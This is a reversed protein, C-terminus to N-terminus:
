SPPMPRSDLFLDILRDVDLPEATPNFMSLFLPALLQMRAEDVDTDAPLEGDDIAEVLITKFTLNQRDHMSTALAVLEVSQAPDLLVAALKRWRPEAMGQALQRTATLLRERVGLSRDPLEPRVDLSRFMHVLLDNRNKFQRYITTRAVGSRQAVAEITVAGIGGSILLDDAAELIMARSQEVRPDNRKPRAPAKKSDGTAKNAGAEGGVGSRDPNEPTAAM